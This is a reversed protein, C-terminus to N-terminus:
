SYFWLYDFPNVILIVTFFKCNTSSPFSLSRSVTVTPSTEFNVVAQQPKQLFYWSWYLELRYDCITSVGASGSYRTNSESPINNSVTSARNSSKASYSNLAQHKFNLCEATFITITSTTIMIVAIIPLLVKTASCPFCIKVWATLSLSFQTPLKNKWLGRMMVMMNNLELMRDDIFTLTMMIILRLMTTKASM